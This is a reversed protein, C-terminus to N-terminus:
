PKLAIVVWNKNAYVVAAGAPRNEPKVVLYDIGMARYGALPRLPARAQNVQQWRRWWEEGYGKLLNAQGGSKWDVYLARRAQARFVGAQLGRHVDPFLFLADPRTSERAWASLQDLEATHLAPYNRMAGWGPILFAAAVAMVPALARSRRFSSALATVAALGLVLAMRRWNLDTWLQVVLGNAPIAFVPVLWAAAEARRGGAAARWAAAVGLMVAFTTIYLVARAPQFQPILIWKGVDLMLYQAPVTLMGFLPLALAFFRAEATMAGRLRLWAAAVIGLLVPYQWLWPKPWQSIWNYAGRLRQIKELSEDIRGFWVQRETVQPQLFAFLFVAAISCALPIVFALKERRDHSWLWHALGCVYFPATSTPHYLTAVGALLGAGLWRRQAACGIAGMLLLVAFGRPVPEYEMTLVAPGNITAGLGFCAAALLAGWVNLGLAQALLFAGTLGIFRFLLQQAQLLTKFELGTVHRLGIAIEDYLTWTVHPRLAIEERGFLEANVRRELIPAYIQTDSQLWTHGPFVAFGLLTLLALALAIFLRQPKM